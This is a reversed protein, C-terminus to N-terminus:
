SGLYSNLNQRCHSSVRLSVMLYATISIITVQTRNYCLQSNRIVIAVYFPMYKYSSIFLSVKISCTIVFFYFSLLSM